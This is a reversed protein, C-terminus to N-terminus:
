YVYLNYYYPLSSNMDLFNSLIKDQKKWEICYYESYKEKTIM